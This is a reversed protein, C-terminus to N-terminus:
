GRAPRSLEHLVSIERAIGDVLVGPEPVLDAMAAVGIELSDAYTLAHVALGVGRGTTTRGHIHAIRCGALYLPEAPGHVMAIGVNVRAVTGTLPRKLARGLVSWAVPPVADLVETAATRAPSPLSDDRPVPATRTVHHDRAATEAAIMAVREQASELHTPLTVRRVSLGDETEDREGHEGATMVPYLAVLPVAPLEDRARLYERVAGTVGALVVDEVTLRFASQVRRVDALPISGVALSRHHTTPRRDLLTKPPRHGLLAGVTGGIGPVGDVHRGPGAQWASTLVGTVQAPGKRVVASAVPRAAHVVQNAFEFPLRAQSRLAHALMDYGLPPREGVVAPPNAEPDDDGEAAYPAGDCLAALLQLGGTADLMAWHVRFLVAVRDEPLGEVYWVRWLPRQRPLPTATLEVVLDALAELDAPEGLRRQELHDEVTFRRDTIWHLPGAGFSSGFPRRLLQPLQPVRQALVAKFRDFDHEQPLSPPDLLLIGVTDMTTSRSEIGLLMRELGGIREM